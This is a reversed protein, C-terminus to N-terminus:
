HCSLCWEQRKYVDQLAEVFNDVIILHPQSEVTTIDIARDDNFTTLYVTYGRDRICM